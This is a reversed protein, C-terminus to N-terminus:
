LTYMYPWYCGDSGLDGSNFCPHASTQAGLAAWWAAAFRLSDPSGCYHDRYLFGGPEGNRGRVGLLSGMKGIRVPSRHNVPLLSNGSKGGGERDLIQWSFSIILCCRHITNEETRRIGLLRGGWGLHGCGVMPSFGRVRCIIENSMFLYKISNESFCHNRIKHGMLLFIKLRLGLTNIFYM